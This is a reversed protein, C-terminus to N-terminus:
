GEEGNEGTFRWIFEPHLGPKRKYLKERDETREDLYPRAANIRKDTSSEQLDYREKCENILQARSLERGQLLYLIPNAPVVTHAKQDFRIKFPKPKRGYRLKGVEVDVIASNPQKKLYLITEPLEKWRSSGRIRNNTTGDYGEKPKSDHRILILTDVEKCKRFEEFFTDVDKEGDPDLDSGFLDTAVDVLAVQCGTETLMQRVIAIRDKAKAARIVADIGQPGLFPLNKVKEPDPFMRKLREGLGPNRMETEIVGTTVPAAVNLEGLFPEGTAICRSLELALSSKYTEEYGHILLRDGRNLVKDVIPVAPNAEADKILESITTAYLSQKLGDMGPITTASM